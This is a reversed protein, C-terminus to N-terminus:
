RGSPTSTPTPTLTPTPIPFSVTPLPSIMIPTPTPTLYWPPLDDGKGVLPFYIPPIRGDIMLPQYIHFAVFMDGIVPQTQGWTSDTIEGVLRIPHGAALGDALQVDLRLEVLGRPPLTGSWLIRGAEARCHGIGCALTGTVYSLEGPLPLTFDATANLKGTNHLLIAITFRDGPEVPRNALDFRSASLNTSRAYVVASRRLDAVGIADIRATNTLPTRDTLVANLTAAYTVTLTGGSQLDGQWTIRGGGENCAGSSCALTGPNYTLGAPLSDSLVTQQAPALGGNQLSITYTVSEGPLLETRNATKASVSLDVSQVLLGVTRTYTEAGSQITVTNTILSNAPIGAKATMQFSIPQDQIPQIGGPPVFAVATKDDLGARSRNCQYTIGQGVQPSSLGTSSWRKIYDGIRLIHIQILGSEYLVIQFDTDPSSSIGLIEDWVDWYRADTWQFITYRRPSEGFTQMYVFDDVALSTWLGAIRPIGYSDSYVPCKNNSTPYNGYEGFTLLGNVDVCTTTYDDGFFPFAFGISTDCAIDDVGAVVPQGTNRIDQWVFNAASGASNGQNDTWVYANELNVAGPQDLGVAGSWRLTHTGPDYIAAGTDPALSGVVFDLEAPLPDTFSLSGGVPANSRLIVTYTVPNGAAISPQSIKKISASFDSEFFMATTSRTLTRGSGNELRVTHTIRDGVQWAGDNMSAAYAIRLPPSNAPITGRWEVAHNATWVAGEVPEAFGAFSQDPHLPAILHANPQDEEGAHLEIVYDIAGDAGVASQPNVLASECFSDALRLSEHSVGTEVGGVLYIRNELYVGGALLRDGELNSNVNSWENAASEYREVLNGGGLGGMLYLFGDPAAVFSAGYRDRWPPPLSTWTNTAPTYRAFFLSNPLGGVLYIEDNYVASAMLYAQGGPMVGMDQWQNTAPDYSFFNNSPELADIGGFIYFKGGVGAGNAWYLARPMPTGQSWSDTANDYIFLTDMPEDSRNAPSLGGAVFLREGIGASAAFFRPEPLPARPEWLQSCPDFRQHATNSNDSNDLVGGVIHYANELGIASLGFRSALLPTAVDWQPMHRTQFTRQYVPLNPHSTSAVTLEVTDREGLPVAYPIEVEVVFSGSSCPPLELPTSIPVGQSLIRTPWQSGTLDVAFAMPKDGLNTISFSHLIREGLVGSGNEDSTSLSFKNPHSDSALWDISAELMWTWDPQSEHARPALNEFGAAVYVARYTANCPAVALVAARELSGYNLVPFAFGGPRPAVADPSYYFSGNAYGYLSGNTLRLDLGALFDSPTLNRGLSGGYDSVYEAQLYANFLTSDRDAYAFDQGSIFLRGGSDLFDLLAPEAGIDAVTGLSCEGNGCYSQVWIVVDYSKLTAASPLGYLTSGDPGVKTDSFTSYQIRWLDYQYSHEDLARIFLRNVPWGLFWGGLPSTDVLLISPASELRFNVQAGDGPTQVSQRLLRHRPAEVVLESAGLPLRIQYRGDAGSRSETTPNDPTYIRADAVPGAEDQVLGSILAQPQSLMRFNNLSLAGAIVRQIGVETTYYGWRSLTVQYDGAPLTLSYVGTADSLSHFRRETEPQYAEIRVSALPSNYEKDFVQGRLDGATLGLQVAAYADIRGFGFQNDPGAIGLDVASLTMLREMDEVDFDRVGDQLDASVLLAILGAVHPAAMSTGSYNDYGLIDVASRVDYGPASLEPKQEGPYFSPGQASFYALSDEETTAGVSIAEPANAPTGISGLGASPNGAAFVPAVGAARLVQLIPRFTDDVPNASGWSSNVVDPAKACDASTLDGTLDTPCLFWQFAKIGGIDDRIGGPMTGACIGPIAIWRADPAMGITPARGNGEGVMTGMTHTGHTSYACDTPVGTLSRGLNGSAYLEGDPVFWNYNHDIVGNQNGRYQRLLAPHLYNVGTDFGGVVAGAGRIGLESHVRDAEVKQLNWYYPRDAKAQEDASTQGEEPLADGVQEALDVRLTPILPYNAVIQRVDGRRTLEVLTSLDGEVAIANVIFFPQFGSVAPNAGGRTASRETLLQRLSSQSREATARLTDVLASRRDAQSAYLREDLSAIEASDQLYVIFRTQARLVGPGASPKPVSLAAGGLHAPLVDGRLEDLVRGDVKAQLDSALADWAAWAADQGTTSAAEASVRGDASLPPTPTAVPLAPKATTEEAIALIPGTNGGSLLGWVLLLALLRLVWGYKHRIDQRIYKHRVTHCLHDPM